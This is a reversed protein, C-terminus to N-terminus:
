EGSRSLIEKSISKMEPIRCIKHFNKMKQAKITSLFSVDFLFCCKPFKEFDVLFIVEARKSKVRESM